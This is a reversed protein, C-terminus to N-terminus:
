GAPLADRLASWPRVTRWALVPSGAPGELRALSGSELAYLLDDGDVVSHKRVQAHSGIINHDGAVTHRHSPAGGPRMFSILQTNRDRM